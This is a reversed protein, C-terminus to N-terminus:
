RDLICAHDLHGLSGSCWAEVVLMMLVVILSLSERPRGQQDFGASLLSGNIEMQFVFFRAKEADADGVQRELVVM